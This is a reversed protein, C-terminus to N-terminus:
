NLFEASNSGPIDSSCRIRVMLVFTGANSQRYVAREGCSVTLLFPPPHWLCMPLRTMETLNGSIGLNVLRWFRAVHLQEAEVCVMWEIPTVDTCKQGNLCKAIYCVSRFASSSFHTLQLRDNRKEWEPGDATQVDILCKQAVKSREDKQESMREQRTKEEASGGVSQHHDPWKFNTRLAVDEM